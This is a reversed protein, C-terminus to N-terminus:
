RGELRIGGNGPFRRGNLLVGVWTGRVVARYTGLTFATTGALVLVFKAAAPAAWGALVGSLWVVVPLHLLYMWYSADALYRFGPSPRGLHRVAAGTLGCTLFGIALGLLAARVLQLVGDAAGWTAVLLPYRVGFLIAGAALRFPVARAFGEFGAAAAAGSRAGRAGDHILWGAAFIVAYFAVVNADPLFWSSTELTGSRMTALPPFTVAALFVPAWTSSAARSVAASIRQEARPSIRGLLALLVLAVTYYVLLYWLFWLHHLTELRFAAGSASFRAADAFASGDGGGAAFVVGASVLPPVVALALVFPVGVRTLRNRMMGGAGRRRYLLAAFFGAMLFFIPMRFVHIFAALVDFVPSASRDHIPWTGNRAFTSYALASHLVLGLLMMAARLVDLAHIRGDAAPVPWPRPIAEAPANL